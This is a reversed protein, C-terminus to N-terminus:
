PPGTLLNRDHLAKVGSLRSIGVDNIELHIQDVEIVRKCPLVGQTFGNIVRVQIVNLKIQADNKSYIKKRKSNRHRNFSRKEVQFLENEATKNRGDTFITKNRNIWQNMM